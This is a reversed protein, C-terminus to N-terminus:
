FEWGLAFKLQAGAPVNRARFAGAFGVSAGIGRWIRGSLELGYSTFTVGNGLGSFGLTADTGAFSESGFVRVILWFRDVYRWPASIGLELLRHGGIAPAACTQCDFRVARHM